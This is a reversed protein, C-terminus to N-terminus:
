VRIGSKTVKGSSLLVAIWRTDEFNELGIKVIMTLPVSLLMGVPGLVWGWFLLSLFVILTSLGLGEGLMKPELFTGFIFNILLYGATVLLATSYGQLVLSLLIAPIAAIISGINPIFNLVFALLGWLLPYEVGLLLLLLAVAIGTFLSLLSKIGVYKKINENIEMFNAQSQDPKRSISRLKAPFDAAEMLIFLAMILILVMKSLINSFAGVINGILQLPEKLSFSNIWQERPIQIGSETLWNMLSTTKAELMSEYAPLDNTFQNVSTGILTGIIFGIVLIGVIIIILSISKPIGKRQLWFFPSFCVVAIFLAFLFQVLLSAAAKMGAIVIVFAALTLIFPSALPKQPQSIENM